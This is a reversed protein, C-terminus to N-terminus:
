LQNIHSELNYKYLRVIDKEDTTSDSDLEMEYCLSESINHEGFRNSLYSLEKKSFGNENKSKIYIDSINQSQYYDNAATKIKFEVEGIGAMFGISVFVIAIITILRTFHKKFLRVSSKFHTKM